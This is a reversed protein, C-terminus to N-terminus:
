NRIYTKGIGTLASSNILPTYGASQFTPDQLSATGNSDRRYVCKGTVYGSPLTNYGPVLAGSPAPSISAINATPVGPLLSACSAGSAGSMEPAINWIYSTPPQPAPPTGMCIAVAYAQYSSPSAFDRRCTVNYTHVTDNLSPRSTRLDAGAGDECSGGGGVLITGTPCQAVAEAFKNESGTSVGSATKRQISPAPSVPAAQWTANGQADSTLVKGAGPTGGTIKLRGNVELRLIDDGNGISTKFTPSDGMSLVVSGPSVLSSGNSLLSPNSVWTGGDWRLSSGFFGQTGADFGTGDPLGAAPQWTANGNADSTLVKGAAPAGNQITLVKPNLILQGAQNFTVGRFINDSSIRGMRFIDAINGGGLAQNDAFSVNKIINVQNAFSKLINGVGWTAGDHSLTDGVVGGPLSGDGGQPWATVCNANNPNGLLIDKYENIDGSGLCFTKGYVFNGSFLGKRALFHNAEISAADNGPLDSSSGLLGNGGTSSPLKFQYSNGEHLPAPANNGPFPATPSNWPSYQAFANLAISFVAVLM